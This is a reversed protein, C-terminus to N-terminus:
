PRRRPVIGQIRELADELLHDGSVLSFRVYKKGRRRPVGRGRDGSERKGGLGRQV